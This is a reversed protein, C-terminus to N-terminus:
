KAEVFIGIAKSDYAKKTKKRYRKNSEKRKDKNNEQYIKSRLKIMEKNREYYDKKYKLEKEPNRRKPKKKNIYELDRVYAWFEVQDKSICSWINGDKPYTVKDIDICKDKTCVLVRENEDPLQDCANIWNLRM